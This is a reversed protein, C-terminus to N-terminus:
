TILHIGCNLIKKWSRYSIRNDGSPKKDGLGQVIKSVEKTLSYETVQYKSILINLIGIYDTSQMYREPNAPFQKELSSAFVGAKESDNAM